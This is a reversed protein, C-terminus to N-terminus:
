FYLVYLYYLVRSITIYFMARMMGFRTFGAVFIIFKGFYPLPVLLLIYAGYKSFITTAKQYRLQIQQDTSFRYLNYGVIGALYNMASALISGILSVVFMTRIDYTGLTQMVSLALELKSSIVLNSYLSDTLLFLYAEFQSM